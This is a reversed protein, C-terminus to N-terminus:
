LIGLRDIDIHKSINIREYSAGGKGVQSPVSIIFLASMQIRLKQTLMTIDTKNILIGNRQRGIASSSARPM